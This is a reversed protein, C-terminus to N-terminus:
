KQIWKADFVSLIKFLAFIATKPLLFFIAKEGGILM